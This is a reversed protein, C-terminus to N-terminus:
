SVPAGLIGLAYVVDVEREDFLEQALLCTFYICFQVVLLHLLGEFLAKGCKLARLLATLQFLKSIPSLYTILIDSLYQYLSM